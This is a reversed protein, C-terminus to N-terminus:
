STARFMCHSRQEQSTCECGLLKRSCTASEVPGTYTIASVMRKLTSELAERDRGEYATRIDVALREAYSSM